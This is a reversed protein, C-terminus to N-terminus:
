RLEIIPSPPPTAQRFAPDESWGNWKSGTKSRNLAGKVGLRGPDRAIKDAFVRLDKVVPKMRWSIDSINAIAQELELYMKDNHLVRGIGKNPDNLAESMQVLQSMLRDVQAISRDINEVIQPGKEGLPRTFGELNKLNTDARQAMQRIDAIAAQSDELMKPLDELAAKLKAKLQDDGVIKNMGDMARNFNNLAIDTKELISNFRNKNKSVLDNLNDTLEDIKRVFRTVEGGAEQISKTAATLNKQMEGWDRMPNSALVAKKIYDGSQIPTDSPKQGDLTLELETDGLISTSRIYCTENSFVPHEPKLSLTVLVQGAPQLAVASVRGILIGSKRVPTGERVGPAEALQVYVTTNKEPWFSPVKGFLVILVCTIVLSAIVLVGVRFQLIREDM